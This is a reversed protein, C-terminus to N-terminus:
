PYPLWVDWITKLELVITRSERGPRMYKPPPYPVLICLGQFLM